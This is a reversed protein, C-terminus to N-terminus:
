PKGNKRRPTPKVPDAPAPDAEPTTLDQGIAHYETVADFCCQEQFVITEKKRVKDADVVNDRWKGRTSEPLDAWKPLNPYKARYYGYAVQAVNEIQEPHIM